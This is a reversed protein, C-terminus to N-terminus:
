LRVHSQAGKITKSISVEAIKGHREAHHKHCLWTVDLQKSYDEHHAEAPYVGCVECGQRVIKGKAIAYYVAKRAKYKPQQEPRSRYEMTNKSRAAKEEDSLVRSQRYESVYQRNKAYWSRQWAARCPKCQNLYGDRMMTHRDFQDLPKTEGCFKCLRM